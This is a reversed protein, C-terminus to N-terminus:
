KRMERAISKPFVVPDGDTKELEALRRELEASREAEARLETLAADRAAEAARDSALQKALDLAAIREKSATIQKLWSFDRRAVGSSGGASFLLMGAVLITVCAVCISLAKATDASWWRAAGAKIGVLKAIWWAGSLLFM